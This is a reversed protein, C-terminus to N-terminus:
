EWNVEFIYLDPKGKQTNIQCTDLYKIKVQKGDDGSIFWGKNDRGINTRLGHRRSRPLSQILFMRATMGAMLEDTIPVVKRRVKSRIPPKM